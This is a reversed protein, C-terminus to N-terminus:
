HLHATANAIKTRLETITDGQRKNDDELSNVKSHLGKCEKDLEDARISHKAAEARADATNRACIGLAEETTALKEKVDEFELNKFQEAELEMRVSAEGERFRDREERALNLLENTTRNGAEATALQNQLLSESQKLETIEASYMELKSKLASNENNVVVYAERAMKTSAKAENAEAVAQDRETNAQIVRANAEEITKELASMKAELAEVTRAYSSLSVVGDVFKQFTSRITSEDNRLLAPLDDAPPASQVQEKVQETVDAHTENDITTMIRVGNWNIREPKSFKGTEPDRVAYRM